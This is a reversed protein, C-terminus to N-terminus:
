KASKIDKNVSEAVGSNPKQNKLKEQHKELNKKIMSAKEENPILFNIIVNKGDSAPKAKDMLIAEDSGEKLGANKLYVNILSSITEARQISETESVIIAQLNDADQSFTIKVNRGGVDYLKQLLQSDGFALIAEKAVETMKEDSGPKVSMTPKVLKGYEDLKARVEITFPANIDVQNNLIAEGYRAAFEELPKKNFIKQEDGNPKETKPKDEKNATTNANPKKDKNAKEDDFDPLTKPSDNKPPRIGSPFRQTRTRPIKATVTPNSGTSGGLPSSPLGGQVANPNPTPLVQPSDLTPPSSFTGPIGPIYGSPYPMGTAPDIGGTMNPDVPPAPNAQSFYGAPYNFQEGVNVWTVDAEEIETKDYDRSSFETDTGLLVSTVYAADLVQCVKGVYPSDCAKTGLLDVQSFVILGFLHLAAAAGIIKYIRPSLEWSKLEYDQFLEKEEM